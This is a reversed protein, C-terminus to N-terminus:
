GECTSLTHPGNTSFVVLLVCWVPGPSLSVEEEVTVEEEVEVEEEEEEEEEKGGVDVGGERGGGSCRVPCSALRLLYSLFLMRWGM